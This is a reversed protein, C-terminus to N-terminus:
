SPSFPRMECAMPFATSLTIPPQITGAIGPTDEREEHPDRARYQEGRESEKGKSLSRHGAVTRLGRGVRCGEGRCLFGSCLQDVPQALCDRRLVLPFVPQTALIEFTAGDRTLSFLQRTMITCLHDLQIRIKRSEFELHRDPSIIRDSFRDDRSSLSLPSLRLGRSNDLGPTFRVRSIGPLSDFELAHVTLAEFQILFLEVDVIQWIGRGQERNM